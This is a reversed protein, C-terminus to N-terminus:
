VKHIQKNRGIHARSKPSNATLDPRRDIERFRILGATKDVRGPQSLMGYRQWRKM